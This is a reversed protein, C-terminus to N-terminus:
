GKTAASRLRALAAGVRADPGVRAIDGLSAESLGSAGLDLARELAAAARKKDGLRAASRAELIASGKDGAHGLVAATAISDEFRGLAHLGVQLKTLGVVRDAGEVRALANRVQPVRKAEVIRTVIFLTALPDTEGALRTATASDDGAAVMRIVDPLLPSPRSELDATDVNEGSSGSVVEAYAEGFVRRSDAVVAVAPRDKGRKGNNKPKSEQRSSRLLGPSSSRGAYGATVASGGPAGRRGTLLRWLTLYPEPSFLAFFVIVITLYIFILAAGIAIAISTIAVLVLGPRRGREGLVVVFLNTVVNGGDLGALPLLNIIGWWLNVFILDSAILQWPDSNPLWPRIVMVMLAVPIGILPGALSVFISKRPPLAFGSITLGGMGWLRIEPNINYMRLAFAHGLEHILISVAVVVLWEAIYLGPRNMWLGMLVTILLFDVGITVPFGFLRFRLGPLSPSLLSGM